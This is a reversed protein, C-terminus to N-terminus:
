LLTCRWLVCSDKFWCERYTESAGTAECGAMEMEMAYQISMSLELM